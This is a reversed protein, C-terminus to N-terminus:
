HMIHAYKQSLERYPIQAQFSSGNDKLMHCHITFKYICFMYQNKHSSEYDKTRVINEIDGRIM